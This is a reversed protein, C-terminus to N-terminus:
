PADGASLEAFILQALSPVHLPTKVADPQGDSVAPVPAFFASSKAFVASSTLTLGPLRAMHLHNEQDIGVAIAFM